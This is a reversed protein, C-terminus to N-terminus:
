TLPVISLFSNAKLSAGGILAGDIDPQVPRGPVDATVQVGIVEIQRACELADLPRKRSARVGGKDVAVPIHDIFSAFQDPFPLRPCEVQPLHGAVMVQPVIKGIVGERLQRTPTPEPKPPPAKTTEEKEKSM